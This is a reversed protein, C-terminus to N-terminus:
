GFAIVGCKKDLCPTMTEQHIAPLPCLTLQQAAADTESPEVPDQQGVAMEVVHEANGTEKRRQPKSSAILKHRNM